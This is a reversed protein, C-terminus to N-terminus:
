ISNRITLQLGECEEAVPDPRCELADSEASSALPVRSDTHTPVCSVKRQRPGWDSTPQMLTAVRQVCYLDHM